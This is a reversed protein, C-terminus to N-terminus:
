RRLKLGRRREHPTMGCTRASHGFGGCSGCHYRRVSDTPRHAPCLVLPDGDDDFECGCERVDPM